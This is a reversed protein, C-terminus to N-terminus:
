RIGLLVPISLPGYSLFSPSYPVDDLSLAARIGPLRGFLRSLAVNAKGDGSLVERVLADTTVAWARVGRPLAVPVVPGADRFRTYTHPLPEGPAPLRMM